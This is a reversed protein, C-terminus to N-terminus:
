VPPSGISGFTVHLVFRAVILHFAANVDGTSANGVVALALQLWHSVCGL